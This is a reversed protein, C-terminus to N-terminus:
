GGAGAWAADEAIAQPVPHRERWGLESQAATCDVRVDSVILGVNFRTLPPPSESRALRYAGECVAALGFALGRPVHLRPARRGLARAILRYLQRRTIEQGSSVNYARGHAQPSELARVAVEAVDRVGVCPIRNRGSGVIAAVPSRVLAAATPFAIRDRAGWIVSPRVAAAELWGRLHYSFVLQESQVKERVYHNWPRPRYGYPDTERLLRGDLDDGYVAISSLHVFRRVGAARAANLLNRTGLVGVRFFIEPRGWGGVVAATHVVGECGAAAAGLTAPATVDGTAFEVDLGHLASRDSTPRVLARVTHGGALLREVVHSGALGTAGTVLVHM